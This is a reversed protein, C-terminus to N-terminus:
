FAFAPLKKAERAKGVDCSPKPANVSPQFFVLNIVGDAMLEIRAFGPDVNLHQGETPVNNGRPGASTTNVYVPALIDKSSTSVAPMAAGQVEKQELSRILLEGEVIDGDAKTGIRVGFRGNRHIHGSLVLRVGADPSALTRIFWDRDEMFTGEDADMGALHGKPGKKPPVAFIPHGNQVVIKGNKKMAYNHPGRTPSKRYQKFGRRLDDEGWNSWPGIPPAHIGIIKAPNKLKVFLEVMQKQ